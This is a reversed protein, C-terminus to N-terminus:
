EEKYIEFLDCNTASLLKRRYIETSDRYLYVIWRGKSCGIEADDGPTRHPYYPSGPSMYIHECLICTRIIKM